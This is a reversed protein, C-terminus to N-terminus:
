QKILLVDKYVLDHANKIDLLVSLVLRQNALAKHVTDRLRLLHDLPRRPERFASQYPNFFNNNELHWRLRVTVMREMLKCLHSTLSIPKYSSPLNTPKFPKHLLVIISYLWCMLLEGTFWIKNSLLLVTPLCHEPTHKLMETNINDAGVATNNSPKLSDKLETM